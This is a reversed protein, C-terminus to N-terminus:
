TSTQLFDVVEVGIGCLPVQTLEHGSPYVCSPSEQLTAGVVVVVVVVVLVVVVVVVVVGIVVIVVVVVDVVDVSDMETVVVMAMSLRVLPTCLSAKTEMSTVVLMM